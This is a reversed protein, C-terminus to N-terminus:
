EKDVPFVVILVSFDYKERLSQQTDHHKVLVQSAENGMCEIINQSLTLSDLVMKVKREPVKSFLQDMVFGTKVIDLCDVMVAHYENKREAIKDIFSLDNMRHWYFSFDIGEMDFLYVLGNLIDERPKNIM